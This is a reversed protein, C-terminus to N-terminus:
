QMPGYTIRRVAGHCECTIDNCRGVVQFVAVEVHRGSARHNEVVAKFADLHTAAKVPHVFCHEVDNCRYCVTVIFKKGHPVNRDRSFNRLSRRIELEENEQTNAVGNGATEQPGGASSREGAEHYNGHGILLKNIIM